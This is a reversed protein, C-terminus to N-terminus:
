LDSSVFPMDVALMVGNLESQSHTLASHIGGLPGSGRSFIPSSRVSARRFTQRDGVITVVGCVERLTELGRALLTQGRFDLFAKNEGMRTSKGGAQLYAACSPENAAPM